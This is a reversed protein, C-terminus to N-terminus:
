EITVDIQRPRAEPAKPLTVLLVGNKYGAKVNDVTINVPIRFRYTFPGYAREQYMWQVPEENDAYPNHREGSIRLVGEQITIDIDSANVGPLAIMVYLNENDQSLEVEDEGSGATNKTHVIPWNTSALLRNIEDGFDIVPCFANITIKENM